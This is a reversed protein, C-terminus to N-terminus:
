LEWIGCRNEEGFVRNESKDAAVWAKYQKRIQCLTSHCATSAERIKRKDKKDEIGDLLLACMISKPDSNSRGASFIDAEKCIQLLRHKRSFYKGRGLGARDMLPRLFASPIPPFADGSLLPYLEGHIRWLRQSRVGFVSATKRPGWWTGENNLAAFLLYACVGRARASEVGANSARLRLLVRRVLNNKLDDVAKNVIRPSVHHNEGVERLLKELPSPPPTAYQPPPSPFVFLQSVVLGCHKCVVFEETEVHSKHECPNEM